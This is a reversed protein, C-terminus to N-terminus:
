TLVKPSSELIYIELNGTYFVKSNGMAFIKISYKSPKSPIYQRFGYKGRFGPLMKDTKVKQGM